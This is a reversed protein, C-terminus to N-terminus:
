MLSVPDVDVATHADSKLLRAARVSALLRHLVGASPAVVEVAVRHQGAIRAVACDMPGMVRVGGLRQEGAARDLEGALGEAHAWAREHQEDRTVIRAMRAPSASAWSTSIRNVSASSTPSDPAKPKM